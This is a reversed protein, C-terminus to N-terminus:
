PRDGEVAPQIETWHTVPIARLATEQEDMANWAGHRTSYPLVTYIGGATRVWYDGSRVPQAEETSIWGLEAKALRQHLEVLMRRHGENAALLSKNAGLLGEISAQQDRIQDAALAIVDECDFHCEGCPVGVCDELVEILTKEVLAKRLASKATM